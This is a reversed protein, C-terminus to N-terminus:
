VRVYVLSVPTIREYSAFTEPRVNWLRLAAEQDIETTLMDRISAKRSLMDNIAWIGNPATHVGLHHGQSNDPGSHFLVSSHRYKM